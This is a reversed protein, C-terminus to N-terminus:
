RSIRVFRDMGAYDKLVEIAAGALCRQVLSRAGPAQRPDIELLM